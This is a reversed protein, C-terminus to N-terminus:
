PQAVGSSSLLRWPTALLCQGPAPCDLQLRWLFFLALMVIGPESPSGTEWLFGPETTCHAEAHCVLAVKAPAVEAPGATGLRLWKEESLPRARWTAGGDTTTAVNPEPVPCGHSPRTPTPGQTEEPSVALANFVSVATCNSASPCSLATLSGLV